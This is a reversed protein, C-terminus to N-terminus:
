LTPADDISASATSVRNVAGTDCDHCHMLASARAERLESFRFRQEADEIAYRADAENTVIVWELRRCLRRWSELFDREFDVRESDEAETVHWRGISEEDCVVAMEDLEHQRRSDSARGALEADIEAEEQLELWAEAEDPVLRMERLEREDTEVSITTGDYGATAYYALLVGYRDLSSAAQREDTVLTVRSEDEAVSLRRMLESFFELLREERKFQRTILGRYVPGDLLHAKAARLKARYVLDDPVRCSPVCARSREEEAEIDVRDGVEDREVEHLRRRVEELEGVARVIADDAAATREISGWAACSVPRHKSSGESLARVAAFGSM